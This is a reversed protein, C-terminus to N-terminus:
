ETNRGAAEAPKISEVRIGVLLRDGMSLCELRKGVRLYLGDPREEFMGAWAAGYVTSRTCTTVQVRRGAALAANLEDATYRTGEM